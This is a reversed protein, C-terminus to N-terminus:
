TCRTRKTEPLGAVFLIIRVRLPAESCNPLLRICLLELVPRHTCVSSNKKRVAAESALKLFMIIFSLLKVKWLFQNTKKCNLLYHMNTINGIGHWGWICFISCTYQLIWEYLHSDRVRSPFSFQKESASHCQKLHKMLCRNWCGMVNTSTSVTDKHTKYHIKFKIWSSFWKHETLLCHTNQIYASTHQLISM